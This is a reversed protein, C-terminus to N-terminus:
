SGGRKKTESDFELKFNVNEGTDELIVTADYTKGTKESYCGTLRVRGDKLLAAAVAKTLVKKKAAFFRNDKWLGFRCNDNECFFGKKSETVSSGCRPCKGVAERGSPFLVEAGKVPTYTQILERLMGAIGNMFADPELEGREVQKLRNEWEATLLPSQLQEPLVTVLSVGVQSPILNTTKKAKKREVFGTTVLKELIAARTAPTGLGKREADDPADDCVESQENGGQPSFSARETAGGKGVFDNSKAPVGHRAGATEMASLLTDETYHKPPSSKGEKVSVSSVAIDQGEALEPLPKDAQEQLYAKWGPVLVTKGKATFDYGACDLTVATEAYQHASGVACLLQRSVLRLIEREGAPLASIDAKGAGSTPAVAHHDSVKASDCVQSANLREPVDAGCIAAAVSALGPVIGEMDNTLFRSDTRPYTCLKKEYLSQLYDLTQQATYGLLRNVDRQLTTLDYLAPAKESKEKREVARVIAAKGKCAATVAEAEPKARLKDGTATFGGCDLSVTYFPEPQFASIEAERQVILALTPSMVRGVNLTRHYLVSFLRTANIGVLWDAKSRCLASQHLGDYDRGPKLDAFGQRIAEDEMSSIWLRKMPKSCDAMDYVTHFILEGERGADCANIVEDVDDRRMLDRLIAFQKQKDGSVAFRWNEPLIPLDERRWKAYKKDYTNAKALEALHGLCWSVLYGNGELFGDGRQKVGIVAAISQAVSPKESIVLKM